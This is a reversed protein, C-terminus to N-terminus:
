FEDLSFLSDIPKPQEIGYGQAYDIGITKLQELTKSDEVFEAVTKIGMANSIRHFSELMVFNIYDSDINKVFSGDIKLYDVPLNKLYTFSSMGKGFDDLAFRFGMAKLENIFQAAKELNAIASTETIEFCINQPPFQSRHLEDRIFDLLQSNNISVGSLNINFLNQPPKGTKSLCHNWYLDYYALFTSFVWCDITSMLGYREAAPIFSMPSVTEQRDELRLLIEYHERASPDNVPVIKQYYLSFRDESLAQKLRSIWQREERQKTLERDSVQYVRVCNRGSEKAAYCAADAASLISTLDSTHEDIKAVGISVGIRFSKGQWVFRFNQIIQKISIATAEAQHLSCQYLLLGFEDGGLRALTDSVRVCKSLTTAIQRLLEDGAVHGCTDNIIKFQDLDLYCVAHCNHHQKAQFIASQLRREFEQRNFLETLADHTAQWSLQRTFQRSATCDNFVLVLGIIKGNSARIPSVSNDIAYETGDRAILITQDALSISQNETLVKAIPDIVAARTEEDVFHLIETFLEGQVEDRNWGSLKEAIPNFYKITGRVNITVIARDISSLTLQALEQAAFIALDQQKRETIDIESVLILPQPSNSNIVSIELRHWRIHKATYVETEITFADGKALHRRADNAIKSDVFRQSFIDTSEKSHLLNDGYCLRAAPNQMVPFGEFNYLSIMTTTYQLAELNQKIEVDFETEVLLALKKNEILIKSYTFCFQHNNQSFYNSKKIIIPQSFQQLYDQFSIGTKEVFNTFLKEYDNNDGLNIAAQNAWWIKQREFDFVWVPKCLLNLSDLQSRSIIVIETPNM